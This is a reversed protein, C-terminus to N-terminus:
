RGGGLASASRAWNAKKVVVKSAQTPIEASKTSNSSMGKVPKAGGLLEAPAGAPADPTTNITDKSKDAMNRLQKIAPQYVQNLRDVAKADGAKVAKNYEKMYNQPISAQQEASLTSITGSALHKALGETGGYDYMGQEGSTQTSVGTAGLGADKQVMHQIEHAQVASTYMEPHDINIQSTDGATSYAIAKPVSSDAQLNVDKAADQEYEPVENPDIQTSSVVPTPDNPDASAVPHNHVDEDPISTTGPHNHVDENPITAYKPM